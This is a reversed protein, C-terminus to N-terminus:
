IFSFSISSRKVSSPNNMNFLFPFLVKSKLLIEEVEHHLTSKLLINIKVSLEGFYCIIMLFCEMSLFSGGTNRITSMSIIVVRIMTEAINM